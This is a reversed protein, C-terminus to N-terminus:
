TGSGHGLEAEAQTLIADIGAAHQAIMSRLAEARKAERCNPGHMAEMCAKHNAATTEMGRLASRLRTGHDMFLRSKMFDPLSM